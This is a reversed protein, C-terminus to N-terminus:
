SDELTEIREIINPDRGRKHIFCKLEQIIDTAARLRKASAGYSQRNQGHGQSAKKCYITRFREIRTHSEDLLSLLNKAAYQNPALFSPRSQRHRLLCALMLLAYKFKRKYARDRAQNNQQKILSCTAQLFLDAQRAELEHAALECGGLIRTLAALESDRVPHDSLRRDIALFFRKLDTGKHLIRGLGQIRVTQEYVPGGGDDEYWSLLHKSISHPCRWYSWTVFGLLDRIISAKAGIDRLSAYDKSAKHLAEELLEGANSPVPLQHKENPVSGDSNLFRAPGRDSIDVGIRAGEFSPLIPKSALVKLQLIAELGDERPQGDVILTTESYRALISTASGFRFRPHWLVPHGRYIHCNPYALRSEDELASLIQAPEEEVITMKSWDLDLPRQRLPTFSDSGIRVKAYGQGPSQEVSVSISHQQDPIEPLDVKSKRPHDFDQKILYFTLARANAAIAFEAPAQKRYIEGGRLRESNPILSVFQPTGQVLANIELQPLFDYYVPDGRRLRESAELCGRAALRSELRYLRPDDASLNLAKLAGDVLASQGAAAGEILIAKAAKLRSIAEPDPASTPVLRDTISPPSIDRWSGDSQRFLGISSQEGVAASWLSHCGCLLDIASVNVTRALTEAAQHSFTAGGFGSIAVRGAQHRVPVILSGHEELTLDGFHVDDRLISVVGVTPNGKTAIPLTKHQGIWGLTAAVTRWLLTVAPARSRRLVHLFLDRAGEDFSEDDPVAVVSFRAGAALENTLAVLAAEQDEDMTKASLAKLAASIEIRLHSHSLAGWGQGRGHPALVTQPGVVFTAPYRALSIAAGNVGGDRFSPDGSETEKFAAWDWLGNLDLGVLGSM